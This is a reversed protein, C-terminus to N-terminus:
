TNREEPLVRYHYGGVAAFGLRRYLANAAVNEVVCLVAMHQAGHAQGWFAARRMMWEAVGQRRQHPLVVVAHVMCIDDHVGAFAVGGPKEKWRSLIATKTRAREMVALRAPGIGDTAWIEKMMALPEWITFATVRPIPKDTLREIPLTYLTTADKEVYGRAALAADLADGPKRVCFIPAQGMKRMAAEAAAIQDETVPGDATASSVRQGGGQGDRLTFGNQQWTRAAPWTAESAAFLQEVTPSM